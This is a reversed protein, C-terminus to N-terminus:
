QKRAVIQFLHWHKEQGTATKGPHEEEELLVIEFPQLMDEVQQRSHHTLSLYVAWSDRDGFLQGCFVGGTRLSTVINHWLTPFAAPPCFPLSFSANILDAAPLQLAEFRVVQTKLHATNIDPRQLLRTIGEAEGDVALVHWGRRLLEVTDRGDGCGIDVAMGPEPAMELAKILTDRPPRGKIADYYEEWDPQFDPEAQADPSM